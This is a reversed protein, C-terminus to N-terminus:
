SRRGRALFGVASSAIGIIGILELPSATKPLAKPKTEESIPKQPEPAPTPPVVIIPAPEPAPTPEEVKPAPTPEPKACEKVPPTCEVAANQEQIQANLEYSKSLADALEGRRKEFRANAEDIEHNAHQYADHIKQEQKAATRKQRRCAEAAEHAAHDASKKAKAVEKPDVPCCTDCQPPFCPEQLRPAPCDPV